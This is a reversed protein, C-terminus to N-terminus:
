NEKRQVIYSIMHKKNAQLTQTILHVAKNHCAIWLGKLCPHECTSLLHPWTDIDNSHCLNFNPNQHLLPWFITKKIHNGM